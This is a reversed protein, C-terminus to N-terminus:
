NLIQRLCMYESHCKIILRHECPSTKAIYQVLQKIMIINNKTKHLNTGQIKNTYRKSVETIPAGYAGNKKNNNYHLLFKRVKCQSIIDESYFPFSRGLGFNLM